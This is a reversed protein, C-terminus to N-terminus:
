GITPYSAEARSTTQGARYRANTRHPGDRRCEGQRFGKPPRRHKFRLVAGSDKAEGGTDVKWAPQHAPKTVPQLIAGGLRHGANFQQDVGVSHCAPQAMIEVCPRRPKQGANPQNRVKIGQAGANRQGGWRWRQLPPQFENLQHRAQQIGRRIERRARRKIRQRVTKRAQDVLHLAFADRGLRHCPQVNAMERGM